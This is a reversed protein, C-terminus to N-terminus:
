KACDYPLKFDDIGEGEAVEIRQEQKPCGRRKLTLYNRGPLLEVAATGDELTEAKVNDLVTGSSWIIEFSVGSRPRGVHDTVRLLVPKHLMKKAEYIEPPLMLLELSAAPAAPTLEVHRFVATDETSDAVRATVWYIGLPLRTFSFRGESDTQTQDVLREQQDSLSVVAEHMPRNEKGIVAGAVSAQAAAPAPLLGMEITNSAVEGQWITAGLNRSIEETNSFKAAYTVSLHYRGGLPKNAESQAPALRLTAKEEYDEGAALRVLRPRPLGVSEFVNGQAPTSGAEAQVPELHVSLTSGEKAAGRARRYLWLTQKGANHLHLTVRAPFPATITQQEVSILLKLASPDVGANARAALALSFALPLTWTLGSKSTGSGGMEM